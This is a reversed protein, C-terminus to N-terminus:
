NAAFMGYALDPDEMESVDIVLTNAGSKCSIGQMKMFGYLLYGEAAGDMYQYLNDATYERNTGFQQWGPVFDCSLPSQACAAAATLLAALLLALRKMCVIGSRTAYAGCRTRGFSMESHM